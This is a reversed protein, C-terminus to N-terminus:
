NTWGDWHSDSLHRYQRVESIVLVSLPPVASTVTVLRPSEGSGGVVAGVRVVIWVKKVDGGPRTITKTVKGEKM